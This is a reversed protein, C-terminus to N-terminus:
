QLSKYEVITRLIGTAVAVFREFAVRVAREAAFVAAALGVVEAVKNGVVACLVWFAVAM